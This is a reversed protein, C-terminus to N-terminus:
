PWAVFGEALMAGYGIFLIDGENKVMKPTTGTAIIVHFGSIAGCAITIFLPFLAGPVVPGGGNIFPLLAPMQLTPHIVIVGLALAAITGLKLYSSVYGRPVLLLWLPLLSAFFGYIPILLSIQSKSLNLFPM